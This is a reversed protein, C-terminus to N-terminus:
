CYATIDFPIDSQLTIASTSGTGWTYVGIIAPNAPVGQNRVITIGNKYGSNAYEAAGTIACQSM